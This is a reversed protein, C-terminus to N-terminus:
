RPGAPAAAGCGAPAPPAPPPRRNRRSRRSPRRSARASGTAEGAKALQRLHRFGGPDMHVARALQDQRHRAADCAVSASCWAIRAASSARSRSAARAAICCGDPGAQDGIRSGSSRSRGSSKLGPQPWAHGSRVAGAIGRAQVGELSPRCRHGLHDRRRPLHAPEVRGVQVIGVMERRMVGAAATAAAPPHLPM